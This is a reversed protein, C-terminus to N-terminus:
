EVAKGYANFDVLASTDGSLYRLLDVTDKLFGDCGHSLMLNLHGSQERHFGIVPKGLARFYGMEWVTGADPLQVNTVLAEGPKEKSDRWLLLATDDPMPYELVAIMLEAANLGDVNSQFVPDWNSMIKKEEATMTDSGSHLRASYFTKNSDSVAYEIEQILEIQPANFLPAAIFVDIKMTNNEEPCLSM